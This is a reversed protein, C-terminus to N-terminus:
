SPSKQGDRKHSVSTLWGAAIAVVAMIMPTRAPYDTASALLVLLIVVSGLRALMTGQSRWARFSVALVWGVGWALLGVGALGGELAISLIDNHAQNVYNLRLLETPEHIRYSADFNGFGVGVPSYAAVMAIVTPRIQSRLDDAQDMTLVRDVAAARDFFVSATVLALLVALFTAIIAIKPGRSLSQLRKGFWRRAILGGAVTGVLGLALGTRSGTALILLLLLPIFGLILISLLKRRDGSMAAMSPAAACGIALFLAFHNRNAFSGSVEGRVDNILPHDFDAGTVQFVGLFAAGLVSLFLAVLVARHQSGSLHRWAMLCAFPVVLSGLANLTASPSVAIPRWPQSAGAFTAADVFQSRGPLSQWVAPPLPLLQLVLLGIMSLLLAEPMQLRFPKTMPLWLAGIIVVGWATARMIVQGVADARSAGGAFYLAALLVLLLSM